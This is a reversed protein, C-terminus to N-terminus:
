FEYLILVLGYVLPSRLARTHERCRKLIEIRAKGERATLVIIHVTAFQTRLAQSNCRMSRGDADSGTTEFICSRSKLLSRAFIAGLRM